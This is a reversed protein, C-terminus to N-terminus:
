SHTLRALDEYSRAHTRQGGRGVTSIWCENDAHDVGALADCGLVELLQEDGEEGRLPFPRAQTQCDTSSHDFCVTTFNSDLRLLPFAACKGHAEREGHRLTVGILRQASQGGEVADIGYIRDFSNINSIDLKKDEDRLNKTINNRKDLEDAKLASSTSFLIVILFFKFVKM